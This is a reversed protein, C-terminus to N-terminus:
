RMVVSLSILPVINFLIIAMKYLIIGNLQIADLKEIPMTVMKSLVRNMVKHGATFLLWWLILIGYNIVSCWLLFERLLHLNM